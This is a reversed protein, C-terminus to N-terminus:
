YRIRNFEAKQPLFEKLTKYREEALQTINRDEETKLLLKRQNILLRKL